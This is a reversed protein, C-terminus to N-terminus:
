LRIVGNDDMGATPRGNEHQQEPEDEEMEDLFGPPGSLMGAQEEDLGRYGGNM